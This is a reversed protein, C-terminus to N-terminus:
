WEQLQAFGPSTHREVGIRWWVRVLAGNRAFLCYANGEAEETVARLRADLHLGPAAPDFDLRETVDSPAGDDYAISAETVASVPHALGKERQKAFIYPYKGKLTVTTLPM